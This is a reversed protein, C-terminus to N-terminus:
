SSEKASVPIILMITTGSDPESRVEFRAGILSARERMFQLGFNRRGRSAIATLDFGRGDDSVQLIWGEDALMTSVTVRGAAAHKRVNQLAEQAIRLVVTQEVEGLLGASATLECGIAV